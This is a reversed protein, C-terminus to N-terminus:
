RQQLDNDDRRMVPGQHPPQVNLNLRPNPNGQQLFLIIRDSLTATGFSAAVVLLTNIWVAALGLPAILLIVLTIAGNTGAMLVNRIFAARQSIVM